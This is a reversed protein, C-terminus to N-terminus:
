VSIEQEELYMTGNHVYGHQDFDCSDCTVVVTPASITTVKYRYGRSSEGVIRLNKWGIEV